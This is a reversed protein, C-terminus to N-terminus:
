GYCASSEHEGAVPMLDILQKEITWWRGRCFNPKLRASKMSCAVSEARSARYYPASKSAKAIRLFMPHDADRLHAYQAAPRWSSLEVMDGGPLSAPIRGPIALRDISVGLVIM